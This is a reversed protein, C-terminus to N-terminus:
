QYYRTGISSLCQSVHLLCLQRAGIYSKGFETREATKQRAAVAMWSSIRREGQTQMANSIDIASECLTLLFRSVELM